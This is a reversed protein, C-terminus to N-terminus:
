GLLPRIKLEEFRVSGDECFFFLRDGKQEPLRNILCRRQDICVDIIDEKLIIDLTFLQDLGDVCEIRERGLTISRTYPSFALEAMSEFAGSGHLGLGFRATNAGPIVRCQIRCDRPIGDFAGVEQIGNLQVWGDGITCGDTLANGSFLLPAATPPLMEAPFCTGLTGDPNQILERIIANGGWLMGGDDRGDRRPGAWGVGIRRQAGFPATKMVACFHTDLTDVPPRLWPGELSRAMRYCTQLRQGFLMYHWGNWEFYDPCEPVSPYGADGGPILLPGQLEWEKLDSSVLQLLCGGRKALPFGALQSTVLMHWQGDSGAFVFPDRFETPIYEAPPSAFPNPEQKEFAIGDTSTAHGLHQTYDRKRIAYFAHYVGAHYIVSGTCISGEWDASIPLALPHHEWHVLDRTSAHAWQHGGLGGMGQHHGQDLLYFLHFTGEHFFPMCDGLFYNGQPKFYQM